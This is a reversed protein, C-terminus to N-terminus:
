TIYDIDIIYHVDSMNRVSMATYKNINQKCIFEFPPERYRTGEWAHQDKPARLDIYTDFYIRLPRIEPIKSSLVAGNHSRLAGWEGHTSTDRAGDEYGVCKCLCFGPQRLDQMKNSSKKSRYKEQPSIDVVM